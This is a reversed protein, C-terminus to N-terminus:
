PQDGKAMRRYYAETARRYIASMRERMGQLLLDRDRQPLNGWEVGTEELSGGALADESPPPNEGGEGQNSRQAGTTAASATGGADSPKPENAGQASQSGSGSAGGQQRQQSRRASEILADLRALVDEQVRQVGLGREGDILLTASREMLTSAQAVLSGPEEEALQQNLRERAAREAERAASGDSDTGLIDDLSPLDDSPKEVAPPETPVGQWIRQPTVGTPVDSTPSPPELRSRIAELMEHVEVQERALAPDLDGDSTRQLIEAQMLRLLRLEALPPIGEGEQQGGSGGGEGGSESRAEAFPDEGDTAELATAIAAALEAARQVLGVTAEGSDGSHLARAADSVRSVLRDHSRTLVSSASERPYEERIAQLEDVIEEQAVSLRRAELLARRGVLAATRLHNVMEVAVLERDAIQRYRKALEQAQRNAEEAELRQQREKALRLAEELRQTSRALSTRVLEDQTPEARLALIAEDQALAAEGLPPALRTGDAGLALTEEMVSATNRRLRISEAACPTTDGVGGDQPAAAEALASSSVLAEIAEVLSALKRRLTEARAREQDALDASMGALVRQAQASEQEAEVMQNQRTSSASSAIRDALAQEQAREVARELAAARGPDTRETRQAQSQLDRMMARADASAQEVERALQDLREAEDTALEDPSKGALQNALARREADTRALEDALKQIRRQALWSDEDRDLLAALHEMAERVQRQSAQLQATLGPRAAHDAAPMAAAAEQASVSAAAGASIAEKAQELVSGLGRDDLRNMQRRQELREVTAGLGALRESVEAQERTAGNAGDDGSARERELRNALARQREDVRMAGQRLATLQSRIEELLASEAIVRVRRIVSHSEEHRTGDVEYADAAIAVLEITDGPKPTRPFDPGPTLGVLNLQVEVEASPSLKANSMALTRRTQRDTSLAAEIRLQRVGLDDSAVARLPVVATPSVTEDSEPLVFSVTPQRDAVVPIEFAIEDLNSIGQADRLSLAVLLSQRALWTLRWTSGADLVELQPVSDATPQPSGTASISRAALERVSEADTPPVPTSLRLTLEAASGEPLPAGLRAQRSTGDGLEAELLNVGAHAPPTARFSASIVAPARGFTIQQLPTRADLSEFQFELTAGATPSPVLREFEREGSQALQFEQWDSTTNGDVTRTRVWVREQLPDGRVLEARLAFAPGAAARSLGVLSRLETRAPWETDSLPLVLRRIGVKAEEPWVACVAAVATAMSLLVGCRRLLPRRDIRVRGLSYTVLDSARQVVGAALPNNQDVGSRAFDAGSALTGACTHDIQELRLAITSRDLRQGRLRSIAGALLWSVGALALLLESTRFLPPLRFIVDLGVLATASGIAIVALRCAEELALVRGIRRGLLALQNLEHTM